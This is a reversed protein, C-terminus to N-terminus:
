THYEANIKVYEYSIDNTWINYCANGAKFDIKVKFESNKLIEALELEPTGADQGNLVVPKDDYFFDVQEPNFEAGSYGVAALVRGWNPDGGFWATKCLLSNAIAEACKRADSESVANVVEVTVFKTAGEGDRVIKRALDEMVFTLGKLFLEADATDPEIKVGSRGNAMLIVTDNTSMDGDVTIRNFTKKVASDLFQALLQRGVEADTTIYALMTAHPVTMEPAIMGSGKTMGGIVIDKGDVHLTVAIEKKVTDTTM